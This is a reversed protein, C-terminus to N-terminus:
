GDDLHQAILDVAPIGKRTDNILGGQPTLHYFVTDGKWRDSFDGATLDMFFVNSNM